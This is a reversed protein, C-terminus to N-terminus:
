EALVLALAAAVALGYRLRRNRWIESLAVLTMGLLWSATNATALVSASWGWARGELGIAVIGVGGLVATFVEGFFDRIHHPFMSATMLLLVLARATARDVRGVLRYLAALGAIFLMFNYRACWFRASKVVRGFLFLPAAGLPAVLSYPEPSIVGRDLLAQLDR